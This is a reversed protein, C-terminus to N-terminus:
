KILIYKSNPLRNYVIVKTTDTINRHLSTFINEVVCIFKRNNKIILSLTSCNTSYLPKLLSPKKALIPILEALKLPSARFVGNFEDAISFINASIGSILKSHSIVPWPSISREVEWSNDRSSRKSYTISLWCRVISFKLKFNYPPKM